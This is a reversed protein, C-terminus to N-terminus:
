EVIKFNNSRRLLTVDFNLSMRFVLFYFLMKVNHKGLFSGNYIQDLLVHFAYGTLCAFLYPNPYFFIYASLLFVLEWSHLIFYNKRVITFTKFALIMTKISVLRKQTIVYDLCHDVDVLVTSAMAMSVLLIDGSYSYYTMSLPITSIIHQRVNM